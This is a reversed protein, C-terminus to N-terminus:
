RALLRENPPDALPAQRLKPLFNTPVGSRLSRPVSSARQPISFFFFCQAFDPPRTPPLLSSSKIPKPFSCYFNPATISPPFVKCGPSFVEFGTFFLLGRAERLPLTSPHCFFPFPLWLFFFFPFFFSFFFFFSFLVFVGSASFFFQQQSLFCFGYDEPPSQM